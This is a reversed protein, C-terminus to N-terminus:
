DEREENEKTKAELERKLIATDVAEPRHTTKGPTLQTDSSPYESKYDRVFYGVIGGVVLAGIVYSWNIVPEKGLAADRQMQCQLLDTKNIYFQKNLEREQILLSLERQCNDLAEQKNKLEETLNWRKEIREIFIDQREDILALDCQTINYETINEFTINKIWDPQEDCGTYYCSWLETTGNYNCYEADCDFLKAQTPLLFMVAMLGLYVWKGELM